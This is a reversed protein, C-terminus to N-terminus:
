FTIIYYNEIFYILINKMNFSLLKNLFPFCKKTVIALILFLLYISSVKKMWIFLFNKEWYCGRGGM